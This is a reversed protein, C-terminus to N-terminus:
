VNVSGHFRLIKPQLHNSVIWNCIAPPTGLPNGSTTFGCVTMSPGGM